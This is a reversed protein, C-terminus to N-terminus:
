RKTKLEQTIKFHGQEVRILRSVKLKQTAIMKRIQNNRGESLVFEYWHLNSQLNLYIYKKQSIPKLTKIEVSNLKYDDIILGKRAQNIFNKDLIQSVGVLYKKCSNNKPHTLQQILNGDNSLILLGESMYDLRGAPKLHHYKKPLFNYITKKGGQTMKSTLSFIPKYFLITLNQPQINLLQWQKNMLVEIKQLPQISQGLLPNKSDVRVLGRIIYQDAERRSINLNYALFKNIRM